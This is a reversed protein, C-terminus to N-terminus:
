DSDTAFAYVQWAPDTAPPSRFALSDSVPEGIVLSDTRFLPASDVGPEQDAVAWRRVVALGRRGVSGIWAEARSTYGADSYYLALPIPRLWQGQPPRYLALEAVPGTAYSVSLVYGILRPTFRVRYLARVSDELGVQPYVTRLEVLAAAPLPIPALGVLLPARLHVPPQGSRIVIAQADWLRALLSPSQAPLSTAPMLLCGPFLLWRRM